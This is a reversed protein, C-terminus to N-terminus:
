PGVHPIEALHKHSVHVGKFLQLQVKVAKGGIHHSGITDSGICEGHQLIYTLNYALRRLLIEIRIHGRQNVAPMVEGIISGERLLPALEYLPGFIDKIYHAVM